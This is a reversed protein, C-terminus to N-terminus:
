AGELEETVAQVLTSTAQQMNMLLIGGAANRHGGGGLRTAV